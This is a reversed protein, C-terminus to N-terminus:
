QIQHWDQAPPVLFAPQSFWPFCALLWRKEMAEAETGVRSQLIQSSINYSPTFYSLIMSNLGVSALFRTKLMRAELVSSFSNSTEVTLFGFQDLTVHDNMSFGYFRSYVM